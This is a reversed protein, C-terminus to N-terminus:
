KIMAYGNQFAQINMKATGSPVRENIAEILYDKDLVDKLLAGLVGLAVMNATIELGAERAKAVIPLSLADEPCDTAQLTEDIIIIGDSRIDNCYKGYSESTLALFIDPSSVKPYDVPQDSIIVEARSAGGRAEPGYSQTQVANFGAKIAADALTVGALIMGQGGSGSLRVEKKIM